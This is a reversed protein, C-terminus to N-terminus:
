FHMRTISCCISGELHASSYEATQCCGSHLCYLPGDVTWVRRRKIIDSANHLVFYLLVETKSVKCTDSESKVDTKDKDLIKTVYHGLRKKVSVVYIDIYASKTNTHTIRNKTKISGNKNNTQKKGSLMCTKNIDAKYM